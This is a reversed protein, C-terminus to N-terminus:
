SRMLSFFSTVSDGYRATTEQSRHTTQEAACSSSQPIMSELEKEWEDLDPYAQHSVAAMGVYVAAQAITGVIIEERREQSGQSGGSGRTAGGGSSGLGTAACAAPTSGSNNTSDTASLSLDSESM